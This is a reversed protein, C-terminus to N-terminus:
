LTSISSHQESLHCHLECSEARWLLNPSSLEKVICGDIDDATRGPTM